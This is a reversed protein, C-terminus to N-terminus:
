LDLLKFHDKVLYEYTFTAAEKSIAKDLALDILKGRLLQSWSKKSLKHQLDKLEAIEDFIIEQGYGLKVLQEIINDLKKDLSTSTKPVKIQKNKREIYASGKVSIKALDSEGYQDVLIAYGRRRLDEGIERGEGNRLKIDNLELIKGISYYEDGYLENLKNLIFFSKEGVTEVQVDDDPNLLSDTISLYGKMLKLSNLFRHLRKIQQAEEKDTEADVFSSYFNNYVDVYFDRLVNVFIDTEPLICEKIWNEIETVKKERFDRLMETTEYRLLMNEITLIDAQIREFFDFHSVNNLLYTM